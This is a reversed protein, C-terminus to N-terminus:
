CFFWAKLFIELDLFQTLLGPTVHCFALRPGPSVSSSKPHPGLPDGSLDGASYSQPSVSSPWLCVTWFCLWASAWLRFLQFVGQFWCLQPPIHLYGCYLPLHRSLWASIHCGAQLLLGPSQTTPDWGTLTTALVLLFKDWFEISKNSEQKTTKTHIHTCIM